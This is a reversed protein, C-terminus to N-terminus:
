FLDAPDAARLKRLAAVGSIWCMAVAQAFVALARWANMDIPIGAVRRTLSYLALTAILGPIYGLVALFLAQQLVVWSVASESYGVAKLTAYEALRNVIDSSIVQYVFVAGVLLGVGVGFRFITGVATQEIWYRRERQELESRTRVRVASPMVRRLEAVTQAANTGPELKILGINVLDLPRGGQLRSFTQDSTLLLGDASYGSGITCLGVVQIRHSGLETQVGPDFSGFEWRSRRDMVVTDPLKLGESAQVIEAQRWLHDTIRFGIMMINRKRRTEVNRWRQFGLYLPTATRVGAIAEARDLCLRPVHDPQNLEIYESSVLAVDFDFQDYLLTATAEASGLFGLQMFILIVAFAIGAVAVATRPLQNVLNAWALTSTM